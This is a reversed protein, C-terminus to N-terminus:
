VRREPKIFKDNDIFISNIGTFAYESYNVTRMYEVIEENKKDPEINIAFPITEVVVILPRRHQLDLQVLIDLANGEVDINILMPTEPCYKKLLDSVSITEIHVTDVIELTPDKEMCQKAYAYDITSLGDGSMIYFDVIEHSRNAICLNLVLDGAREQKLESLLLPNAEVLIGRAGFRYFMYTNSMTKAHNAGLDLYTCEHFPIGIKDLLYAIITDEGSQSSSVIHGFSYKPRQSSIFDEMRKEIENIKERVVMEQKQSLSQSISNEMDVLKKTLVGEIESIRTVFSQVDQLIANLRHEYTILMGNHRDLESKMQKGQVLLEGVAITAAGNFDTQQNCIPEIYWKLCKRIVKKCFVIAKGVIKRCSYIHRYARNEQLNLMRLLTENPVDQNSYFENENKEENIRSDDHLFFEQIDDKVNLAQIKEIIENQVELFKVKDNM